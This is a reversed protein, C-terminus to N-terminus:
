AALALLPRREIPEAASRMGPVLSALWAAEEEGAAYECVSGDPLLLFRHASGLPPEGTVAGLPYQQTGSEAVVCLLDPAEFAIQVARGEATHGDYHIAAIATM